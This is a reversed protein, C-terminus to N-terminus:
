HTCILAQHNYETGSTSMAYDPQPQILGEEKLDELATM